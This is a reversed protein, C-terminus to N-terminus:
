PRITAQAVCYRCLEELNPTAGLGPEEWLRIVLPQNDAPRAPEPIPVLSVAPRQEPLLYGAPFVCNELAAVAYAARTGVGSDPVTGVWCPTSSEQCADHVKLATTIGGLQGLKIQVYRGSKLELALEAQRLSFIAEDLGLPTRITDQVMAMGVLDEAPLPQELMTLFFDDLRCLLDMHQLGLAGEVDAHINETPFERRVLNLMSAEWGPRLKLEVRHFGAAFAQGIARLLDDVTPMRDFSVGLLIEEHKGDILRHLPKNQKRAFLDWWACDLASRAHQNGAVPELLEQLQEPSQVYRGVLRPALHRQLVHFATASTEPYWLPANGPSAEGWGEADGSLMRVLVTEWKTWNGLRTEVPRTLPLELHYLEICDIKM